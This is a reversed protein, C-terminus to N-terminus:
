IILNSSDKMLLCVRFFEDFKVVDQMGTGRFTRVVTGLDQKSLIIGNAELLSLFHVTLISGRQSPIQAKKMQNRM